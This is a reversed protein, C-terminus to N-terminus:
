LTVFSLLLFFMIPVSLLLALPRWVSHLLSGMEAVYIVLLLMFFWWIGLLIVEPKQVKHLFVELFGRRRRKKKKPRPPLPMPTDLLMQDNKQIERLTDM